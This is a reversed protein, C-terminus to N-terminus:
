QARSHWAYVNEGIERIAEVMEPHPQDTVDVVGIIQNEGNSPRGTIMQDTYQFWHSGVSFPMEAFTKDFLPYYRRREEPTFTTWLQPLQRAGFASLQHEGIQIPRGALEHWRTFADREPLLSYCNISLVDVFRGAIRVIEDRPPIRVFRCGLYLHNPDAAKLLRRVTEFYHQAYHNELEERLRRGAGERPLDGDRLAAVADWSDCSAGVAESFSRPSEYRRQVLSVWQARMAAGPPADLLRMRDWKKENDIFWGILWPNDAQPAATEACQRAFWERWVPDFVDYFSGSLRCQAPGKTNMNRVHPIERQAIMEASSWNAVTNYGWARYRKLIQDRWAEISGYKRICNYYYMRLTLFSAEGWEQRLYVGAPAEAPAPLKDFLFERGEVITNDGYRVGTCGVSWFPRGEPDVYWWRGAADRAVQFFGSAEFREGRTWGGFRSRDALPAMAALSRNEREIGARLDEDARVKGPWDANVRQGWADVCPAAEGGPAAVLDIRSLKVSREEHPGEWWLAIRVAAPEFEPQKGQVLPLDILDIAFDEMADPALERSDTLRGRAGVVTLEACVPKSGNVITATLRGYGRWSRPLGLAEPIAEIMSQRPFDAFASLATGERGNHGASITVAPGSAVAVVNKVTVERRAVMAGGGDINGEYREVLERRSPDAFARINAHVTTM